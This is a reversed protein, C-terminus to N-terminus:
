QDDEPRELRQFYMLSTITMNVPHKYIVIVYNGLPDTWTEANGRQGEVMM